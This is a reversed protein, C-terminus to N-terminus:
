RPKFPQLTNLSTPRCQHPPHQISTNKWILISITHLTDGLLPQFTHMWRVKNHYDTRLLHPVERADTQKHIHALQTLWLESLSMWFTKVIGALIVTSEASTMPRQPSGTHSPTNTTATTELLHRWSQSMFGRTLLRWGINTQRAHVISTALSVSLEAHFWFDVAALMMSQFPRSCGRSDMFVQLSSRLKDRFPGAIPNCDTCHLHDMTDPQDCYHCQHSTWPQFRATHKRFPLQDHVLKLLHVETSVYTRAAMHFTEWDINDSVAQDWGHKQMLYNYLDEEAGTRRLM